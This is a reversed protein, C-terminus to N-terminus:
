TRTFAHQQKRVTLRQSFPLRTKFLFQCRRPALFDRSWDVWLGKEEGGFIRM